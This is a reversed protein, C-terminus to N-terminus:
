SSLSSVGPRYEFVLPAYEKKIDFNLYDIFYFFLLNISYFVFIKLFAFMYPLWLPYCSIGAANAGTLSSEHDQCDLTWNVKFEAVTCM